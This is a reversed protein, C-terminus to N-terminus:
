PNGKAIQVLKLNGVRLMYLHNRALDYLLWALEAVSGSARDPLREERGQLAADFDNLFALPAEKKQCEVTRPRVPRNGYSDM